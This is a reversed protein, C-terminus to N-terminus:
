FTVKTGIVYQRGMGIFVTASNADFTQPGSIGNNQADSIYFTNLANTVSANLTIKFKEFKIDYGTNLDLLGYSPMQWSQRDKFSQQLDVPSFNAYNQGFYTYRAKFFLGKYINYRLANSIQTQAANGIRVNKASYTVQGAIQGSTPDLAYVTAGNLFKWNGISIAAEWELQKIKYTWDFEIGMRLSNMGNINFKFNNITAAGIPQNKWLTYYVNVNGAFKRYKVGMGVEQSSIFSNKVNQLLTNGIVNGNYVNAFKPAISMVGVNAYVNYNASIKYNAGGKITFGPFWQKRTTAYRAEKSDITYANAGVIYNTDKPHTTFNNYTVVFTTDGHQFMTQAANNMVIYSSADSNTSNANAFLTENYGIVADLVHEDRNDKFYDVFKKFGKEQPGVVVDMRSFYDKRQYGTYSGTVTAFTTWPGKKYELQTFLGGWNVLGDYNYGIKDGVYRKEAKYNPDVYSLPLFPNYVGRPANYSKTADLYYDGGLLDSVQGYHLGRYYRADVGFTFTFATDIKWIATSLLGYWRHNNVQNQLIEKSQSDKGYYKIQTGSTPAASNSTYYPTLNMYGDSKNVQVTPLLYTGGGYGLSAYGVTSVTLRDTANWFHSLNFLPKNYYNTSSYYDQGNLKALNYNYTRPREGLAANVYGSALMNAQPDKIGVQSAFNQSFTGISAKDNRQGHTQPAGNVSLSLLNRSNVKWQFKAFYSWAQIFTGEIYGDGTKYSGAFVMGFKGKILGSNYGLSLKQYNNNGFDKQITTQQQQDLSQTIINMTGGASSVALKTAGLGRQVQLTKTIQALGDWNSWYVAGNEMDNVPVGDVLIAINAQDFGRLTVRSDGSGGGQQSAYVGPTSNLLMPLDRNGLEESIKQQGINTIAVPTERVTGVNAVVEVEDLTKSELMINAVVDQDVVKVKMTQSEYGVYTIKLTYTGPEIKFQYNGDMDTIAGVGPKAMVSAGFLPENTTADKLTGKIYYTQAFATVSIFLSLVVLLIRRLSM